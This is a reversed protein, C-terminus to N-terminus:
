SRLKHVKETTEYTIILIILVVSRKPSLISRKKLSTELVNNCCYMESVLVTELGGCSVSRYLSFRYKCHCTKIINAFTFNVRFCAM